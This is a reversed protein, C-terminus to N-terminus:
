AEVGPGETLFCRASGGEIPLLAPRETRCRLAAVSCRPSFRCGGAPDEQPNAIVTLRRSRDRPLALPDPPLCALLARTYPHAPHDLVRRTPGVEVVDGAYLVVIRDALEAVMALDHSIVLMGLKRERSLEGLLTRIRAAALVDLATTPEDAILLRPEGALAIAIMARQRMGGSLEHAYADFRALPFGVRELVAQAAAKAEAGRLGRALTVAEIVHWGASYMPHMAAGPDQFVFGVSRGRVHELAREDLAGLDQGDLEVTGTVKAGDPLLRVLASAAMTKGAGSEGVLAVVEGEGVDLDVDGLVRTYGPGFPERLAVGLGRV